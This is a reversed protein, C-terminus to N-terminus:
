LQGKAFEVIAPFNWSRWYDTRMVLAEFNTEELQFQGELGFCSCHGGNVEYLVNTKTNKFLLFASGSYDEYNYEAYLTELDNAVLYGSDLQFQNEIDEDSSFLDNYKEM